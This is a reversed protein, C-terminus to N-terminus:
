VGVTLGLAITDCDLDPTVDSDFSTYQLTWKANHGQVYRNVAIGWETSDDNDDLDQYRAAIEYENPTIMYGVLVSWPTESGTVTNSGPGGSNVVGTSTNINFAPAQNDDYDVVEGHVSFPGHTFGADIALAADRPLTPSAASDDTYAVGVTLNSEDSAGYAGEQMGIGPGLANFAVRATWQFDESVSDAGNMLALWWSLQEWNGNLQIGQDRVYWTQGNFSRDLFLLNNDEILSSWLFPLRFQGMRGSVQEFIPFTGYADLLASGQPQAASAGDASIFVGYDGASGSLYVRANDISFGSLDQSGAAASTDVDSSYAFRSRVFGSVAFGTGAAPISSGLKEIERDLGSWDETESGAYSLSSGATLALAGIVFKNM